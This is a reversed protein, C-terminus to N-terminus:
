ITIALSILYNRMPMARSPLVQYENNLINNVHFKADFKIKKYKFGKGVFVNLLNYDDIFSSNDTSTFRYGTYTQNIAAYLNKYTFTLWNQYTLRPVYILQKGVTADNIVNSKQNTSLVYSIDNKLSVLIKKYSYTYKTSWELGRS